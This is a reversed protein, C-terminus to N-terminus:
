QSFPPFKSKNVLIYPENYKDKPYIISLYMESRKILASSILSYCYARENTTYLKEYAIIDLNNDNDFDGLYCPQSIETSLCGVFKLNQRIEEFLYIDYRQFSGYVFIDSICVMMLERYQFKFTYINNVSICQAYESLYSVNEFYQNVLSDFCFRNNAYIFYDNKGVDKENNFAESERSYNFLIFDSKKKNSFVTKILEKNDKKNFMENFVCVNHIKNHEKIYTNIDWLSITDDISVTKECFRSSISFILNNYLTFVLLILLLYKIKM